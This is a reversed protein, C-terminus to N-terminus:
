IENGASLKMDYYKYIFIHKILNQNVRMLGYEYLDDTLEQYYWLQSFDLQSIDDYNKRIITDKLSEAHDFIWSKALRFKDEIVLIKNILEIYPLLRDAVNKGFVIGRGPDVIFFHKKVEHFEINNDLDQHVALQWFDTLMEYIKVANEHMEYIDYIKRSLSHYTQIFNIYLEYGTPLKTYFKYPLDCANLQGVYLVRSFWEEGPDFDKLFDSFEIEQQNKLGEVKVIKSVFDFHVGSDGVPYNPTVVCGSSGYGLLRRIDKKDGCTIGVPNAKLSPIDSTIVFHLHIKEGVILEYLEKSNLNSDYQINEIDLPAEDTYNQPYFFKWVNEKDNYAYYTDNLKYIIDTERLSGEYLELKKFKNASNNAIYDVFDEFDPYDRRYLTEDEEFKFDYYRDFLYEIVQEYTRGEKIREPIMKLDIRHSYSRVVEGDIVIPNGNADLLPFKDAFHKNVNGVSALFKGLWPIGSFTDGLYFGIKELHKDPHTIFIQDELLPNCWGNAKWTFFNELTIAEGEDCFRNYEKISRSIIQPTPLIDKNKCDINFNQILLKPIPSVTKYVTVINGFSASVSFDRSFWQNKRELELEVDSGRYLNGRFSCTTYLADRRLSSYGPLRSVVNELFQLKSVQEPTMEIPIQKLFKKIESEEYYVGDNIMQVWFRMMQIPTIDIKYLIPLAWDIERAVAEILDYLSYDALKLLEIIVDIEEYNDEIINQLDFPTFPEAM